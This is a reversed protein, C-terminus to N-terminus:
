RCDCCRKSRCSHNSGERRGREGQHRQRSLALGAQELLKLSNAVQKLHELMNGFLTEAGGAAM